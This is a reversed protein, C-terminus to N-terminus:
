DVGLASRRARSLLREAPRQGLELRPARRRARADREFDRALVRGSTPRRSSESARSLPQSMQSKLRASGVPEVSARARSLAELGTAELCAADKRGLYEPRFARSCLTTRAPDTPMLWASYGERLHLEVILDPARDGPGSYLTERRHVARVVPAPGHIASSPASGSFPSARGRVNTFFVVGRPERGRINLHM